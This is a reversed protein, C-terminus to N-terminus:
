VFAKISWDRERERTRIGDNEVGYHSVYDRVSSDREWVDAAYCERFPSRIDLPVAFRKLISTYSCYVTHLSIDEPIYHWATRQIDVASSCMAVVKLTL